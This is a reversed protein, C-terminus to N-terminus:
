KGLHLCKIRERYAQERNGARSYLVALGMHAELNGPDLQLLHNLLAAARDPDAGTEALSRCLAIQAMQLDPAIEVAHEAEPIADAYHGTTMLTYALMAHPFAEAPAQQVALRFPGIALEPRLRYLLQGYFIPIQWAKPYLAFLDNFQKEAFTSDDALQALAAKGVSQLLPRGRPDADKPLVSMRMGALGLGLEVDSNDVAHAAFYQYQNIAADFEGARVLLQALHFRLIQENHADSDAGHALSATLDRLSNDYAGTEFECLGRLAEAPAANPQLVLVRDFAAIAEPYADAEYQLMGLYFWAEKSRPDVAVAQRYLDIALATNGFDRAGAARSMLDPFSPPVQQAPINLSGTFLFVSLAVAAIVTRAGTRLGSHRLPLITKNLAADACPGPTM